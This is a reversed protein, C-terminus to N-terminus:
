FCNKWNWLTGVNVEPKWHVMPEPQIPAGENLLSDNKVEINKLNKLIIEATEQARIM